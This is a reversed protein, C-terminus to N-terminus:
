GVKPGNNDLSASRSARKRDLFDLTRAILILLVAGALSAKAVFEQEQVFNYYLFGGIFPLTAVRLYFSVKRNM